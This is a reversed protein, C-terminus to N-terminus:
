YFQELETDKLENYISQVITKDLMEKWDFINKKGRYVSHADAVTKTQSLNCFDRTQDTIELECFDFIKVVESNLDVVMNEYQILYFKSPYKKKMELFLKAVEKWRHFGYYWEPRFQNKSQAFRWEESFDWEQNYTPLDCFRWSNLVGCPNRMIGVIKLNDINELLHPVLYHHRVHKSVLIKPNKEKIIFKPSLGKVTEDSLSMEKDSFYYIIDFYDKLEEKTSEHSIMGKIPRQYLPQYKYLVDPSSNVISGLWSTGSRPVGHINIIKEYM